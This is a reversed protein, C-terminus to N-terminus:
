LEVGVSPVELEQRQRTRAAVRCLSVFAKEVIFVKPGLVSAAATAGGGALIAAGAAHALPHQCDLRRCVQATRLCIVFDLLSVASLAM